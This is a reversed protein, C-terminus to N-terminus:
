GGARDIGSYVRRHQPPVEPRDGLYRFRGRIQGAGSTGPGARPQRCRLARRASIPSRTHTGRARQTLGIIERMGISTTQNAAATIMSMAAKRALAASYAPLAQRSRSRISRRPSRPGTRSLLRRIDTLERGAIGDKGARRCAKLGRRSQNNALSAVQTVTRQAATATRIAAAAATANVNEQRLVDASRRLRDTGLLGAMATPPRSATMSSEHDHSIHRSTSQPATGSRPLVPLPSSALPSPGAPLFGRRTKM